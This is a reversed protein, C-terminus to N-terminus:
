SSHVSSTHRVSYLVKLYGDVLIPCGFPSCPINISADCLSTRLLEPTPFSHQHLSLQVFSGRLLCFCTIRTTCYHTNRLTASTTTILNLQFPSGTQHAETDMANARNTMFDLTPGCAAVSLTAEFRKQQILLCNASIDYSPFTRGERAGPEKPQQIPRTVSRDCLSVEILYIM